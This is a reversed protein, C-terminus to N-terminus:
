NGFGEVTNKISDVKSGTDKVRQYINDLTVNDMDGDTVSNQKMQAYEALIERLKDKVPIPKDVTIEIYQISDPYLRVVMTNNTM